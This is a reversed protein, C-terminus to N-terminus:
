AMTRRGSKADASVEEMNEVREGHMGFARAMGAYDSFRLRTEALSTESLSQVAM